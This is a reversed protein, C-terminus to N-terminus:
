SENEPHDELLMGYAGLLHQEIAAAARAPDGTALVDRVAKHEDHGVELFDRHSTNRAQLFFEVQSRIFEWSRKLRQHEAAEYLLDHFALDLEVAETPSYDATVQQMRDLIVDMAAFRAPTMRTAAREIALRELALRLSYVEDIDQRTLTVVFAGRHRRLEVYGENALQSFAERVPGRSVGLAVAIETEKLHQGQVLDGRSIMDRLVDVVSQSLAPQAVPANLGPFTM